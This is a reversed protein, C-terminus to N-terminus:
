RAGNRTRKRRKYLPEKKTFEINLRAAEAKGVDVGVDPLGKLWFTDETAIAASGGIADSLNKFQKIVHRGEFPKFAMMPSWYLHMNEIFFVAGDEKNQGTAWGRVCERMKKNFTEVDGMFIKKDKSIEFPKPLKKLPEDGKRRIISEVGPDSPKVSAAVKQADAIIKAGEKKAEDLIQQAQKEADDIIEDAEEEIKENSAKAESNKPEPPLEKKPSNKKIAEIEQELVTKEKKTAL